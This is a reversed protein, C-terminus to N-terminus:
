QNDRRVCRRPRFATPVPGLAFVSFGATAKLLGPSRKALRTGVGPHPVFRSGVVERNASCPRSPQPRTHGAPQRSTAARPLLLRSRGCRSRGAIRIPGACAVRWSTWRRGPKQSARDEPRSGSEPRGHHGRRDARHRARFKACNACQARPPQRHGSSYPFVERFDTDRSVTSDASNGRM